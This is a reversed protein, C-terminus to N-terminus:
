VTAEFWVAGDAEFVVLVLVVVVVVLVSSPPSIVSFLVSSVVYSSFPSTAWTLVVV